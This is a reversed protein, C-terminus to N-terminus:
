KAGESPPNLAEDINPLFREANANFHKPDICAAGLYEIRQRAIKLAGELMLARDVAKAESTRLATNERKFADITSALNFAVNEKLYDQVTEMFDTYISDTVDRAVSGIRAGVERCIPEVADEWPTPRLPLDDTTKSSEIQRKPQVVEEGCERLQISDRELLDAAEICVTKAPLWTVARLREVLGKREDSQNM